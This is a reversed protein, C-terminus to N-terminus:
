LLSKYVEFTKRATAEWSFLKNREYGKQILQARTHTENVIRQAANRMSEENLPDFYLAADGAVEPLSSTNSVVVPCGCGFAELIPIGFGEYLTPFFFALAHQYLRSLSANGAPAFLLKHSIRLESFTKTEEATFAGGGACVLMLSDDHRLLPAIAKVFLDFNKYMSRNGVFLLFRDPLQQAAGATGPDQPPLLSSALHVVEIKEAETKYYEIIDKKTNESIAIVKSAKGLLLARNNVYRDRLQPFHNGFKEHILDYFTIVFPKKEPIYKLFYTHYYSPHFIDFNNARLAGISAARNIVSMLRQQGPFKKEKFFSNSKIVKKDIIYENNSFILPLQVDLLDTRKFQNMLEFYYRSIGGYNQQTFIQYDYLVRM